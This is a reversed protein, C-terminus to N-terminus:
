RWGRLVIRRPSRVTNIRRLISEEKGDVGRM